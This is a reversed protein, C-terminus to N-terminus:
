KDVVCMVPGDRRIYLWQHRELGLTAAKVLDSDVMGGIESFRDRDRKDPAYHLFLHEAQSYAHQSILAPRQSAAWLACDMARGRTWLVRLERTLGLEAELGYVEDGFLVRRGKKYSDLIAKRFERYLTQDDREPDFVHRPWLTWGPPQSQTFSPAPPWTRVKRYHLAKNFKEATADRPKMVLAIGPLKRNTTASLLQYALTTKGSGTPGLFTVHEGARYRWRRSIFETRDFLELSLSV